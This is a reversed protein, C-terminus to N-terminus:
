KDRFTSVTSYRGVLTWIHTEINLYYGGTLMVITLDRVYGLPAKCERNWQETSKTSAAQRTVCDDNYIWMRTHAGTGESKEKMNKFFPFLKFQFSPVSPVPYASPELSV